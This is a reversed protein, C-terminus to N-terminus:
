TEWTYEVHEVSYNSVVGNKGLTEELGKIKGWNLEVEPAVVLYDYSYTAEDTTVKNEKPNLTTVAEQHWVAGNPIVSEMARGTVELPTVGAGVLTWLPQYYHTNAPDLILIENRFHSSKRLLQAAVTIGGTGGGIVVVKYHTKM